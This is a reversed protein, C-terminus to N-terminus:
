ELHKLENALESFKQSYKNIEDNDGSEEAQRLKDEVEKLQKHISQKKLDKIGNVIEKEYSEEDLEGFLDSARLSLVNAYAALKQENSLSTKIFDNYDFNHKKTYYIIVNKYLKQIDGVLIYEPALQEIFQDMNKPNNLIAGVMTEALIEHREKPKKVPEDQEQNGSKYVRKNTIIQLLKDRLLKEDVKIIEALKQIYHTQEITDALKSIVQLLERAVEKKDEVKDTDYKALTSEFYYDMVSQSDSM